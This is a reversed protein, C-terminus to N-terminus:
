NIEYCSLEGNYRLYLKGDCIVPHAWVDKKDTVFDFQSVVKFGGADIQMLLMQGKHTLCYYRGDALVAAGYPLGAKTAVVNGTAPDYVSWGVPSHSSAAVIRGDTAIASGTPDGATVAWDFAGTNKGMKICYSNAGGRSTSPVFLRGDVYSPSTLIQRSKQHHACKWLLKGNRADVGFAHGSSMNIIQRRRKHNVIIPSSYSPQDGVIPPTTWIEEGTKKNLAVMLANSSSPTIIVEQDLALLSESIGWIINKTDYDALINVSWKEAGDAPDLCVLRGHTNMHYLLGDSYTCSSRSGPWSKKWSKGNAVKWKSKGDFSLASIELKEGSDGTIYIAGGAIIPSSYGAGLGEAKWLLKPGTEPWAALFGKELSIGDRAPGRWQPWGKEPSKVHGGAHSLQSALALLALTTPIRKVIM